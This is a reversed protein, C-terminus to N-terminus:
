LLAHKFIPLLSACSACERAYSLFCVGCFESVRHVRPFSASVVRRVRCVVVVVCVARYKLYFHSVRAQGIRERTPIVIVACRQSRSVAQQSNFLTESSGLSLQAAGVDDDDDSYVVRMCCVVHKHRSTANTHTHTNTVYTHIHVLPTLASEFGRQM